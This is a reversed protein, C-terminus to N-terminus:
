AQRPRRHAHRTALGILIGSAAFWPEWLLGRWLLVKTSIPKAPTIVDLALLAVGTVQVVGYVTLLIAASWGTLLM